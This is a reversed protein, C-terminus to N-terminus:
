RVDETETRDLGLADHARRLVDLVDVGVGIFEHVGAAMEAERRDGPNGALYLRAVGAATLAEAFAEASQAYVADSSCICAMAAGSAALDEVAETPTAFGATGRESTVAEIGGVEFFNKAYTARATHAAVPGLNVLFVKPYSGHAARYADAADRLAEFDEAWRVVGAHDADAAAGPGGDSRGVPEEFLNPFESVGTIPRRRTAVQRMRDSRVEAIATGVTGDIM